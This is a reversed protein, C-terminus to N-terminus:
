NNNKKKFKNLKKEIYERVDDRPNKMSDYFIERQKNLHKKTHLQQLEMRYLITEFELLFNYPNTIYRYGQRILKRMEKQRKERESWFLNAFEKDSMSGQTLLKLKGDKVEKFVREEVEKDLTTSEVIEIGNESSKFKDLEEKDINHM